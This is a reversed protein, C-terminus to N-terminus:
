RENDEYGMMKLFKPEILHEQNFYDEVHYQRKPDYFHEKYYALLKPLHGQKEVSKKLAYDIEEKTGVCEFPKDEDEDILSCLLDQYKEDDLMNKGFIEKIQDEGIHPYLMITVYLCKSCDMCWINKKSGVNCSRFLPLYNPHKLFEEIIRYENWCRLLSFYRIHPTFYTDTYARFDKEFTFSKSYQHNISQGKVNAENASAENSLVIYKKNNLYAMIYSAFALNASFPVHGNYFGQKNLELMLPDLTVDFTVIQEKSYGAEQIVNRSAEDLPYINRQYLFCLNEQQEKKLLELTVVSDKGGGVPILNGHFTDIPKSFSRQKGTTIIKLSEEYSLDLHNRYRLESLGSYFLKKFFEKQTDDLVGCAIIFEPSCTLKYYNIANIIGYNFFLNDLFDEDLCPNTIYEKRITVTPQFRYNDIRYFFKAELAEETKQVMFDEFVFQPHQERANMM